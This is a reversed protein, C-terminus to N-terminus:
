PASAPLAASAAAPAPASARAPVAPGTPVGIPRATMPAQAAPAGSPPTPTAAPPMAARMASRAEQVLSAAGAAASATASSPTSAAPAAASVRGAPAVSAAQTSRVPAFERRIQERNHEILWRGSDIQLYVFSQDNLDGDTDEFPAIWVRIVTPDSRLAGLSGQQTASAPSPGFAPPGSANRGADIPSATPHRMAEGSADASALSLTGAQANAYVGSVSRCPVGKPAACAYTDTGGLGSVNMCGGLLLVASAALLPLAARHAFTGVVTAFLPPSRMM